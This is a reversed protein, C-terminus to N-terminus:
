DERSQFVQLHAEEFAIWVDVQEPHGERAPLAVAPGGFREKEAVQECAKRFEDADGSSDWLSRWYLVKGGEDNEALLYRDGGWGAAAKRAAHSPLIDTFLTKIFFEGFTNEWTNKWGPGLPELVGPEFDIELPPDSGKIYKEPHLIEETSAPPRRYAYNVVEWDAVDTLSLPNKRPVLRGDVVETRQSLELFFTQGGLYPFLMWAQILPPSAAFTADDMFASTVLTTFASGIDMDSVAYELMSLTADGEAVALAAVARDDNEIDEIPLSLLDFHQDTLAHTLEHELIIRSIAVKLSLDGVVVMQKTHQDYFGGVQEGLLHRFFTELQLDKPIAGLLALSAQMSKWQEPSYQRNLEKALFSDLEEKGMRDLPLKTKFELGRIEETRRVIEDYGEEIGPESFAAHVPLLILVSAVFLARVVARRGVLRRIHTM